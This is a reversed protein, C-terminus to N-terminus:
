ISFAQAQTTLIQHKFIAQVIADKANEVRITTYPLDYQKLVNLINRDIEQAQEYSQYRGAEAFPLSMDREIVFNLNVNKNFEQVILKHLMENNFTDYLICLVPPSDTVVYDVKGILRFFRQHQKAWVYIQNKLVKFSEQWTLDKAYETVLECNLHKKKLEAFVEAAITSKGVGPGGFLNIHIM